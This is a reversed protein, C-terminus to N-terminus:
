NVSIHKVKKPEIVAKKPITIMLEGNKYESNIQGTVYNEPLTFSRSWSSYNYERRNYRGAGEHEEKEKECGITLMDDM